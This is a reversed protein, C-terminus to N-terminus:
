KEFQRIKLNELQKKKEVIKKDTEPSAIRASKEWTCNQSNDAKPEVNVPQCSNFLPVYSLVLYIILKKM